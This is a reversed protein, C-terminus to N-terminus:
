QSNIKLLDQPEINNKRNVLDETAEVLDIDEKEEQDFSPINEGSSPPKYPSEGEETENVDSLGIGLNNNNDSQAM